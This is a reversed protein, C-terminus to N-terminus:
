YAEVYIIPHNKKILEVAGRLALLEAGEIDIKIFGAKENVNMFFDDLTIGRVGITQASTETNRKTHTLGTLMNGANDKWVFQLKTQKDM